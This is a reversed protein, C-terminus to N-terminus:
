AKSEQLAIALSSGLLAGIISGGFLGAVFASMDLDFMFTSQVLSITAASLMALTIALLIMMNRSLTPTDQGSGFRFLSSFIYATGVTYIIRFIWTLINSENAFTGVLTSDLLMAIFTLVTVLGTFGLLRQRSLTPFNLSLAYSIGYYGIFTLITAIITYVFNNDNERLYAYDIAFIIAFLVAGILATSGIPGLRDILPGKIAATFQPVMPVTGEMNMGSGVRASGPASTAAKRVDELNGEENVAAMRDDLQRLWKQAVPNDPMQELIGRAQEYQKQNVLERVEDLQAKEDSM